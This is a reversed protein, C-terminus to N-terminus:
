SWTLVVVPLFPLICISNLLWRCFEGEKGVQHIRPGNLPLVGGSILAVRALQCFRDVLKLSKKREKKLYKKFPEGKTAINLNQIPSFPGCPISGFLHICEEQQVREQFWFEVQDFVGDDLMHGFDISLGLYPIELQQCVKCCSSTSSCCFEVFWEKKPNVKPKQTPNVGGSVEDLRRSMIMEDDGNEVAELLISAAVDKGRELYLAQQSVLSGKSISILGIVDEKSEDMDDGFISPEYGEDVMSEHDVAPTQPAGGVPTKPTKVPEARDLLENFRARCEKPHNDSGQKCAECGKTPGYSAVRLKTIKRNRGEPKPKLGARASAPGSSEGGGKSSEGMEDLFGQIDHDLGECDEVRDDDLIEGLYGPGVNVKLSDRLKQPLNFHVQPCVM